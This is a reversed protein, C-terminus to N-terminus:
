SKQRRRFMALGGFGSILLFVSAPLPIPAITQVEFNLTNAGRDFEIASFDLINETIIRDEDTLTFPDDDFVTFFVDVINNLPGLEFEAGGLFDDEGFFTEFFPDGESALNLGMFFERGSAVFIRRTSDFFDQEIKDTDIIVTAVGTNGLLPSNLDDEVVPPIGIVKTVSTIETTFNYTLQAAQAAVGTFLLAGTLCFTRMM